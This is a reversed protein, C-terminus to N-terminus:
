YRQWHGPVWKWGGRTSQWHGDAWRRGMHPREWHGERWEYRGGVWVWNGGVWVYDRAPPAPRTYVVAAPRERVVYSATCSSLLGAAIIAILYLAPKKMRVYHSKLPRISGQQNDEQTNSNIMSPKMIFIKITHGSYNFHNLSRRCLYFICVGFSAINLRSLLTM